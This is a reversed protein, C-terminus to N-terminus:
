NELFPDIFYDTGIVKSLESLIAEISYHGLSMIGDTINYSHEKHPNFGRDDKSTIIDKLEHNNGFKKILTKRFSDDALDNLTAVILNREDESFAGEHEKIASVILQRKYFDSQSNKEGTMWVNLPLFSMGPIPNAIIVDSWFSLRWDQFNNNQLIVDTLYGATINRQKLKGLSHRLAIQKTRFYWLNKQRNEKLSQLYKQWQPNQDDDDRLEFVGAPHGISLAKMALHYAKDYHCERNMLNATLVYAFSISDREGFLELENIKSSPIEKGEELMHQLQTFLVIMQAFKCGKKASNSILEKGAISDKIIYDSGIIKAMGSVFDMDFMCKPHAKCLTQVAKELQNTAIYEFVIPPIYRHGKYVGTADYIDDYIDIILKHDNESIASHILAPSYKALKAETMYHKLTDIKIREALLGMQYKAENKLLSDEAMKIAKEIYIIASDNMNLDSYLKGLELAAQPRQSAFDRLYYVGRIIDMDAIDITQDPSEWDTMDNVLFRGLQYQAEKSGKKYSEILKEFGKVVDKTCGEGWSLLTGELCEAVPSNDNYDKLITWVGVFDRKEYLVEAYAWVGNPYKKVDKFMPESVALAKDIEGTNKLYYTALQIRVREDDPNDAYYDEMIKAAKAIDGSEHKALYDFNEVLGKPTKIPIVLYALIFFLTTLGALSWGAFKYAPRLLRPQTTTKHSSWICLFSALVVLLAIIEIIIMWWSQQIFSISLDNRYSIVFAGISIILFVFAVFHKQVFAVLELKKNHKDIEELARNTGQMNKDLNAFGKMVAANDKQLKGILLKFSNHLEEKLKKEKESLEKGIFDRQQQLVPEIKDWFSAIKEMM